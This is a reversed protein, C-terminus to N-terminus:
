KRRRWEDWDTNALRPLTVLRKLHLRWLPQPDEDPKMWYTEMFARSPIIKAWVYSIKKNLNPRGLWKALRWLPLSSAMMFYFRERLTATTVFLQAEVDSPISVFWDHQLQTVGWQVVQTLQNASSFALVTSWDLEVSVFGADAGFYEVEQHHHFCAHACLHVFQQTNGLGVNNGKSMWLQEFTPKDAYFHFNLLRSHLEVSVNDFYYGHHHITFDDDVSSPRQEAIASLAARAARFDVTNVLIDVDSMPRLAVNGGYVDQILAAGKLLIYRVGIKDLADTVRKLQRHMEANRIGTAYYVKRLREICEVPADERPLKKISDYLLPALRAVVAEHVLADWDHPIYNRWQDRASDSYHSAIALRLERSVAM